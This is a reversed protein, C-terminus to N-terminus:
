YIEWKRQREQLSQLSPNRVKFRLTTCIDPSEFECELIEVQVCAAELESNELKPRKTKLKIEKAKEVFVLELRTM